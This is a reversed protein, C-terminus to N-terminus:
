LASIRFCIGCIHPIVNERGLLHRIRNGHIGDKGAFWERYNYRLDAFWNEM